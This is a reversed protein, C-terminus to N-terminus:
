KSFAVAIGSFNKRTSKTGNDYRIVMLIFREPLDYKARIAALQGQDNIVRYNKHAGFCV